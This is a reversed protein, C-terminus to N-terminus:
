RAALLAQICHSAPESYASSEVEYTRSAIGASAQGSSCPRAITGLAGGESQGAHRSLKSHKRSTLAAAITGCCDAAHLLKSATSMSTESKRVCCLLPRVKSSGVEWGAVKALSPPGNDTSCPLKVVVQWSVSAHFLGHACRLAILPVQQGAFHQALLAIHNRMPWGLVSDHPSPDISAVAFDEPWSGNFNAMEKLSQMQVCVCM